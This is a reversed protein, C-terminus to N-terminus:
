IRTHNQGKCTRDLTSLAAEDLPGTCSCDGRLPDGTPGTEHARDVKSGDLARTLGALVMMRLSFSNPTANASATPANTSVINLSGGRDTADSGAPGTALGAATCTGVPIGAM